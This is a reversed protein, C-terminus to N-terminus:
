KEKYGTSQPRIGWGHWITRGTANDAYVVEIAGNTARFIFKWPKKFADIYTARGWVFIVKTGENIAVRDDASIPSIQSPASLDAGPGIISKQAAPKVEDFPLKNPDDIKTSTWTEFDYGPTQGFNKLTIEAILATDNNMFKIQGGQIFVYARLQREAHREGGSWLLYTAVFLLATFTAVIATSITIIVKDYRESFYVVANWNMVIIAVIVTLVAIASFIVTLSKASLM